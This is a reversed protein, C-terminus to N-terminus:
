LTVGMKESLFARVIPSELADSIMESPLGNRASYCEVLEGRFTIDGYSGAVPDNFEIVASGDDDLTALMNAKTSLTDVFALARDVSRPDAAAAGENDHNNPLRRLMRLRAKTRERPGGFPVVRPATLDFSEKKEERLLFSQASPSDVREPEGLEIDGGTLLWNGMTLAPPASTLSAHSQCLAGM